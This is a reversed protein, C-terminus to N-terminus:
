IGMQKLSTPGEEEVVNINGNEDRRTTIEEASPNEGFFGEPLKMDTDDTECIIDETTRVAEGAVAAEVTLMNGLVMIGSLLVGTLHCIWKKKM